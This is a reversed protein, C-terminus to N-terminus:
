AQEGELTLKEQRGKNSDCTDCTDCTVSNPPREQPIFQKRLRDWEQIPLIYGRKKNTKRPVFGLSKLRRGITTPKLEEGSDLLIQDAIMKPTFEFKPDVDMGLVARAIQGDLSEASSEVISQQLEFAMEKVLAYFEESIIMSLSALSQIIQNMRGSLGPFRLWNNNEFTSYNDFRFFLLKNRLTGAESYFEPPFSTPIEDVRTMERMPVIICRSELANDQFAQRTTMVTPGFVKFTEVDMSDKNTRIVVGDKMVRVNLFKVIESSEQSYRLDGEDICLTGKWQDVTRFLASVTTCGSANIGRYCIHRLTHMVRSKGTGAGGRLNIIPITPCKDYIWTVLVYGALLREYEPDMECYRHIFSQVDNLLTAETEGDKFPLPYIPFLVYGNKLNDNNKPEYIPGKGDKQYQDKSEIKGTSSDWCYYYTITGDLCQELMTGDEFVESPTTVTKKMPENMV